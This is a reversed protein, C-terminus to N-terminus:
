AQNLFGLVEQYKEQKIVLKNIEINLDNVKKRISEIEQIIQQQLEKKQAILQKIKEVNRYVLRIDNASLIANNFTQSHAIRKSQTYQEDLMNIENVMQKLNESLSNILGRQSNIEIQLLEHKRKTLNQLQEIQSFNGVM